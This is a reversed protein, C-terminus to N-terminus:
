QFVLPPAGEEKFLLGIGYELRYPNVFTKKGTIAFGGKSLFEGSPATKSVQHPEVYFVPKVVGEAWCRSLALAAYSAEAIASDSRGKCIISSAGQVECHMYLDDKELRTKVVQENDQASKGGIVLTGDSAIFWNYREFWYPVRKQTDVRMKKPAAKDILMEMASQTKTAKDLAKRKKDYLAKITHNLPRDLVLEIAADELSLIASKRELDYSVIALSHRNGHEREEKWFSEFLSWKMKNDYVKQFVGLIESAFARNRELIEAMDGYAAAQMELQRIYQEQAQRIRDAKPLKTKQTKKRDAFAQEVAESITPFHLAAAGKCKALRETIHERTFISLANITAIREPETIAPTHAPSSVALASLPIGAASDPSSPADAHPGQEAKPKAPPHELRCAKASDVTPFAYLQKFAGGKGLKIEGFCGISSIRSELAAFYEDLPGRYKEDKLGALPGFQRLMEEEVSAVYEKEFPLMGALGADVFRDFSLDLVVTNWVYTTGKTIGLEPVPRLLDVIGDKDDLILINGGAFFEVVIRYRLIDLVLIRDFGHQYVRHMRAHRCKERLKRCFHSIETGHASALYACVGPELALIDKSSFKVFMFRQQTAYFNQIYKGGLRVDLENALARVDLSSLRAKM